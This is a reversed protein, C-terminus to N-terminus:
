KRTLPRVEAIRRQLRDWPEGHEPHNEDDTRDAVVYDAENEDCDAYDLVGGFFDALARFM